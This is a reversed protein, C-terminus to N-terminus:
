QPEGLEALGRKLEDDTPATGHFKVVNEMFSVGKGKVTSAVICTPRDKTAKAEDFAGLLQSIDHGDIGIVRWRFAM